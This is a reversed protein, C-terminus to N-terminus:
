VVTLEASPQMLVGAGGAGLFYVNRAGDSVSRYAAWAVLTVEFPVRSGIWHGTNSGLLWAHLKWNEVVM